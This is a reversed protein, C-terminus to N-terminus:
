RKAEYLSSAKAFASATEESDPVETADQWGTGGGQAGWQVVTGDARPVLNLDGWIVSYPVAPQPPLWSIQGRVPTLSEDGFLARAGYGTCHVIVPEQLRLLDSATHFEELRIKGGRERFEAELHRSYEAINYRYASTARCFRSHFPHEGPGYDVAAPYLDAIREELRAFGIPDEGLKRVWAEDPRLESVTYRDHVDIPRGPLGLLEQYAAYTHRAMAEWRQAFQVDVSAELAIRADPTWTGTARASRTAAPLDRAYITVRAGARQLSIASTLGLAGCGIVGVNRAGIALAMPVVLAASGWSLSWGSGGHGYNHVLLKDGLREAEIRPGRARFPRTCVTVKVLQLPDVCIPVVGNLTRKTGQRSPAFGAIEVERM